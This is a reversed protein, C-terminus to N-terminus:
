SSSRTNTSVAIATQVLAPWEVRSMVNILFQPNYDMEVHALEVQELM